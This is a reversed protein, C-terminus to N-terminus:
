TRFMEMEQHKAHPHVRALDQEINHLEQTHIISKNPLFKLLQRNRYIYM